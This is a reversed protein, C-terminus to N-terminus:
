ESKGVKQVQRTHSENMYFFIVEDAYVVKMKMWM